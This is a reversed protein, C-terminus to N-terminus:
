EVLGANRIKWPALLAGAGCLRFAAQPSPPNYSTKQPGLEASTVFLNEARTDSQVLYGCLRIMAENRVPAPATAAEREILASATAAATDLRADTIQPLPSDPDYNQLGLASRLATRAATLAGASTPWPTLNVVAM